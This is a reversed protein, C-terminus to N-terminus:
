PYTAEPPPLAENEGLSAIEAITHLTERTDFYAYRIGGMQGGQCLEYGKEKLFLIHAKLVEIEDDTWLIRLKRM